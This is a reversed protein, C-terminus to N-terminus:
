GRAPPFEPSTPLTSGAGDRHKNQNKPVSPNDYYQLEPNLDSPPFPRGEVRRATSTSTCTVLSYPQLQFTPKWSVSANSFSLPSLRLHLSTLDVDFNSVTSPFSFGNCKMLPLTGRIQEVTCCQLSLYVDNRGDHPLVSIRLVRIACSPFGRRPHMFLAGIRAIATYLRQVNRFIVTTIQHM